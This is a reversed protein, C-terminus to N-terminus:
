VLSELEIVKVGPIEIPEGKAARIDANAVKVAALVVDPHLAYHQVLKLNDFVEAKRTVRVSAARFGESGKVSGAMKTEAAVLKAEAEAKQAAEAVDEKLLEDDELAKARAAEETAKREAERRAEEARRKQETVYALLAQEVSATSAKADKSLPNYLADIERGATLHPEKEEKRKADIDKSLKKALGILDRAAGANADTIEGFADSRSKLSEIEEAFLEAAEPPNNSLM